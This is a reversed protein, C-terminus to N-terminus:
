QWREGETDLYPCDEWEMTGKAVRVSRRDLRDGPVRRAPGKGRLNFRGQDLHIRGPSELASDGSRLPGLPGFIGGARGHV